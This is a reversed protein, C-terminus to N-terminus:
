GSSRMSRAISHSFARPLRLIPMMPADVVPVSASVALAISGPKVSVMASVGLSKMQCPKM